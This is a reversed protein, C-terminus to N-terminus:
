FLEERIFRGLHNILQVRLRAESLNVHVYVKKFRALM